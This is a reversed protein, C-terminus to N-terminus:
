TLFLLEWNAHLEALYLTLFDEVEEKTMDQFDQYSFNVVLLDPNKALLEKYKQYLSIPTVKGESLKIKVRTVQIEVNEKFYNTLYFLYRQKDKTETKEIEQMYKAAIYLNLKDEEEETFSNIDLTHSYYINIIEEGHSLITDLVKSIRALFNSFTFNKSFETEKKLDFNSYLKKFNNTIKSTNKLKLELSTKPNNVLKDLEILSKNFELREIYQNYIVPFNEKLNEPTKINIIKEKLIERMQKEDNANLIEDCNKGQLLYAVSLYYCSSSFHLVRTHNAETVITAYTPIMFEGGYMEIINSIQSVTDSISKRYENILEEKEFIRLFEDIDITIPTDIPVGKNLASKIVEDMEDEEKVSLIKVRM